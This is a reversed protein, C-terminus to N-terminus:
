GQVVTLTSVGLINMGTQSNHICMVTKNNFDASITLNLQSTYCNSENYLSRGAINGNSCEDYESGSFKFQSHRLTISCQNEFM